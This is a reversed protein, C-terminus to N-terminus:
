KKQERLLSKIKTQKILIIIKIKEKNMWLIIQYRVYLNVKLIILTKQSELTKLSSELYIIWVRLTNFIIKNSSLAMEIIKFIMKM